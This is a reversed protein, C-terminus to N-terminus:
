KDLKTIDVYLCMEKIWVGFYELIINNKTIIFKVFALRVQSIDIRIVKGYVKDKFLKNM